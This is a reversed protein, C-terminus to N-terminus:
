TDDAGFECFHGMLLTSHSRHLTGASNGDRVRRPADSPVNHISCRTSQMM